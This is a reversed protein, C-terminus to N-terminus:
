TSSYSVLFSELRSEIMCKGRLNLFGLRELFTIMCRLKRCKGLNM